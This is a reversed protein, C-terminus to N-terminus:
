LGTRCGDTSSVHRDLRKWLRTIPICRSFHAFHQVAAYVALGELETASYRIEPGRLQRSYFAVPLLERQRVINLVAGVGGLSADTQLVLVDHITPVHLCTVSCLVSRLSQVMQNDWVVKKPTLKRVAPTLVSSYRAFRPIFKRYYGITGLFM